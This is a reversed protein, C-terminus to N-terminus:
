PILTSTPPTNTSASTTPATSNTASSTPAPTSTNSPMPTSTASSTSTPSSTLSPTVTQTPTVTPSSVPTPTTVNVPHCSTDPIIVTMTNPATYMYMPFPSRPLWNQGFPHIKSSTSWYKMFQDKPMTTTSVPQGNADYAAPDVMVIKTDDTLTVPGLTHPNGGIWAQGPANPDPERMIHVIVLHGQRVERAIDNYSNGSSQKVTFSCGYYDEFEDAFAELANPLQKRPYMFGARNIPGVLPINIPPENSPYRYKKADDGKADLTVVYAPATLDPLPTKGSLNALYNNVANRVVVATTTVCEVPGTNPISLQDQHFDEIPRLPPKWPLTAVPSFLDTIQKWIGPKPTKTSTATATATATATNTPTFTITPTSTYTATPSPTFTPTVTKTSIPTPEYPKAPGSFLAQLPAAINMQWWSQKKEAPATVVTVPTQKESSYGPLSAVVQANKAAADETKKEERVKAAATRAEELAELKEMKKEMRENQAKLSAEERAKQEHYADIANQLAKQKEYNQQQKEQKKAREAKEKAVEARVAAEQAEEEEKRKQTM